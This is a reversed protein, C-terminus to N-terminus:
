RSVVPEHGVDDSRVDHAKVRGSNARLPCGYNCRVHGSEPYPSMAIAARKTTRCKAPHGAKVVSHRGEMFM